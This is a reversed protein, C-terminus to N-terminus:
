CWGRAAVTVKFGKLPDSALDEEFADFAAPFGRRVFYEKVIDDSLQVREKLANGARDM